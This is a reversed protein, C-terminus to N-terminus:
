RSKTKFSFTLWAEEAVMFSPFEVQVTSNPLSRERVESLSSNKKRGQSCPAFFFMVIYLMIYLM